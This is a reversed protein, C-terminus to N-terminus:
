LSLGADAVIINRPPSLVSKRTRSRVSVQVRSGFVFVTRCHGGHYLPVCARAPGFVCLLCVYLCLEAIAAMISRSVQVRAAFV